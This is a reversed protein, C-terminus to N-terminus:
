VARSEYHGPLVDELIDLADGVRLDSERFVVVSVHRRPRATDVGVVAEAIAALSDNAPIGGVGAGLLPVWVRDVDLAEARRLVDTTAARIHEEDVQATGDPRIRVAAAHFVYHVPLNGGSTVAASGHAIPAHKALENLIMRPGAKTLLSLAVGGGASITTDEPSVVALTQGALGADEMTAGSSIDGYMVSIETRAVESGAVVALRAPEDQAGARRDVRQQAEDLKRLHVAIAEQGLGEKTLIARVRMRHDLMLRATRGLRGDGSGDILDLLLNGSGWVPFFACPRRDGFKANADRFLTAIEANVAGGEIATQVRDAVEDDSLGEPEMDGVYVGWRVGGSLVRSEPALLFKKFFETISEENGASGLVLLSKARLCTKSHDVFFEPISRTEPHTNLINHTDYDGHLKFVYCKDQEAGWFEAEDPTRIAQCEMGGQEVFARELLKDFNTTLATSSVKGRAMLLAVAYHAFAPRKDQLMERFYRVREEASGYRELCKTYRTRQSWDLNQNAWADIAEADLGGTLMDRIEACIQDAMPVDAEASVGAGVFIVHDGPSQRVAHVVDAKRIIDVFLNSVSANNIPRLM